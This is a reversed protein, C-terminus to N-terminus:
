VCVVYVVDDFITWLRRFHDLFRRYVPLRTVRTAPVESVLRRTSSTPVSPVGKSVLSRTSESVLCMLDPGLTTDQRSWFWVHGSSPSPLTLVVSVHRCTRFPGQPSPGLSLGPAVEMQRNPPLSVSSSSLPDKELSVVVVWHAPQVGSGEFVM